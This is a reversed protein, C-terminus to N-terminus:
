RCVMKELLEKFRPDRDTIIKGNIQIYHNLESIVDNTSIESFHKNTIMYSSYDDIIVLALWKKSEMSFPGKIDM